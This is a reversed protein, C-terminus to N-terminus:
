IHFTACALRMCSIVFFYEFNRLGNGHLAVSRTFSFICNCVKKQRDSEFSLSRELQMLLEEREHILLVYNPTNASMLKQEISELENEVENIKALAQECEVELQRRTLDSCSRSLSIDSGGCESGSLRSM